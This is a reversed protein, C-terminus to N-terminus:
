TDSIQATSLAIRQNGQVLTASINEYFERGSVSIQKDREEFDLVSPVLHTVIPDPYRVSFATDVRVSLDPKNTVVLDYVGSLTIPPLLIRLMSASVLDISLPILNEDDIVVSTDDGFEEGRLVLTAEENPVVEKPSISTVVPPKRRQVSFPTWATSSSEQMFRNLATIRMEYDGPLIEIQIWSETVKEALITEGQFNRIEVKYAGAGQAAKWELIVTATADQSWAGHSVFVFFFILRGVTRGTM